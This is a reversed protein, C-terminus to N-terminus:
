QVLNEIRQILGTMENITTFLQSSELQDLALHGNVLVQNIEALLVENKAVLERHIEEAVAPIETLAIFEEIDTKLNSM